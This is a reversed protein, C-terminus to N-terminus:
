QPVVRMQNANVRWQERYSAEVDRPLRLLPGSSRAIRELAQVTAPALEDVPNRRSAAAILGRNRIRLFFGGSETPVSREDFVTRGM